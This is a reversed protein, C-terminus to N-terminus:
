TEDGHAVAQAADYMLETEDGVEDGEGDAVMCEAELADYALVEFTKYGSVPVEVLFPRIEAEEAEEEGVENEWKRLALFQERNNGDLHGRLIDPLKPRVAGM